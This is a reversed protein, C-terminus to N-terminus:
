NAWLIRIPLFAVAGLTSWRQTLLLFGSVLQAWGLSQWWLGTRYLTEFLVDLTMGTLPIQLTGVQTLREGLVKGM